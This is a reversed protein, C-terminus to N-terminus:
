KRASELAAPEAPSSRREGTQWRVETPLRAVGYFPHLQAPDAHVTVPGLGEFRDEFIGVNPNPSGAVTAASLAFTYEGPEVALEIAFSLLIEEGVKMSPLDHGQQLTGTGFVLTGFRNFLEVGVNPRAIADNARVLLEFIV